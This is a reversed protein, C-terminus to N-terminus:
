GSIKLFTRFIFKEKWKQLNGDNRCGLDSPRQVHIARAPRGGLIEVPGMKGDDDTQMVNEAAHARMPDFRDHQQGIM